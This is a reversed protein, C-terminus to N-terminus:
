FKRGGSLTALYEELPQTRVEADIKVPAAVGMIEAQAKIASIAGRPDFQWTGDPVWEKAEADWSLHPKGELCRAKVEELELALTQATVGIAAYIEEARKRRYAAVKPEKLLRSAQSAATKESYGAAIAAFTANGKNALLHEVFATQKEGLEKRLQEASLQMYEEFSKAM